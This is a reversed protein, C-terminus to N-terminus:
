YPCSPFSVSLARDASNLHANFGSVWAIFDIHHTPDRVGIVVQCYLSREIGKREEDSLVERFADTQSM